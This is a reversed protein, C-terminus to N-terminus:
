TFMKILLHIMEKIKEFKVQNRHEPDGQSQIFPFLGYKTKCSDTEDFNFSFKEEPKLPEIKIEEQEKANKNEENPKEEKSEM